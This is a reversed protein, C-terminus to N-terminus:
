VTGKSDREATAETTTDNYLAEWANTSIFKAFGPIANTTAYYERLARVLRNYDMVNNKLIVKLKRIAEKSETRVFYTFDGRSMVPIECEEMFKAYILTDSLGKLEEPYNLCFSNSRTAKIGAKFAKNIIYGESVKGIVGSNELLEIMEEKSYVM